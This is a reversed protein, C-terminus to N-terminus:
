NTKFIKERENMKGIKGSLILEWNIWWFDIVGCMFRRFEWETYYICAGFRLLNSVKQSVIRFKSFNRNEGGLLIKM